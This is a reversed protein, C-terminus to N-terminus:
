HLSPPRFTSEPFERATAGVPKPICYAKEPRRLLGRTNLCSPVLNSLPPILDRLGGWSRGCSKLIVRGAWKAPQEPDIISIQRDVIRLHRALETGSPHPAGPAFKDHPFYEKNIFVYKQWVSKTKTTEVACVSYRTSKEMVARCGSDPPLLQAHIGLGRIGLNRSAVVM